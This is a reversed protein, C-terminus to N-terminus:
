NMLLFVPVRGTRAAPLFMLIEFRHDRQQHRSIVAVRKFVAAGGMASSQEEIVEFRLSDPKGPRRGYVHTRFLELIEARRAPWGERNRVTVGNLNLPDPLEATGVRSEDYNFTPQSAATKKLVGPDPQWGPAQAAVLITASAVLAIAIMPRVRSMTLDETITRRLELEHRSPPSMSGCRLGDNDARG